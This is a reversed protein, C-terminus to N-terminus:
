YKVGAAEFWARAAPDCDAESLIGEVTLMWYAIFEDTFVGREFKGGNEEITAAANDAASGAVNMVELPVDNERCAEFLERAGM